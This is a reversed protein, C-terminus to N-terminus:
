LSDKWAYFKPMTTFAGNVGAEIVDGTGTKFRLIFNQGGVNMVSPVNCKWKRSYIEEGPRVVCIHGHRGGLKSSPLIAFVLTGANAMYQADKMPIEVWRPSEQLFEYIQDATKGVFDHCGMHGAVDRAAHNCYTEIIKGEANKKPRYEPREYTRLIANLLKPM